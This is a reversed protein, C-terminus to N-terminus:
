RLLLPAVDLEAPVKVGLQALVTPAIHLLDVGEPPLDCKKNSFFIGRVLETDVSVHDGSWNKDNDVVVPGLKGGPASLGGSTTTWSVRYNSDFGVSIDAELHQHPGHHIQSVIDASRGFKEGTKADQAALFRQVIEQILADKEEPKVIGVKSEGGVTNIYITGLGLAYAKTKSWDVYGSLLAYMGAGEKVALFGEQALWNNLHVQRRFSQFGHDACLLLTDGPKVYESVVRGVIQDIKRYMAPIAEALTIEQGYFTTKTAAKAADHLPHQPDYYQYLMHQVRDAESFIGVFLKWDDRSLGDFVLKERWQTTFEIDQLFTVADIVDDKFPHTLCAWGVTEFTGCSTALEKSFDAPQSIPQWFPPNAPDIEITNLYLEFHPSDLSVLKARTVAHVKLLPNLEFTVRYWDSWAGEKIDQSQGGITVKALGQQKEIRMPVTVPQALADKLANRREDLELSKKFPMSPEDVLRKEIGALEERLQPVLWFNDPGYVESEIVGDREDVRLKYGGSGTDAGSESLKRAFFLEDTTYIFYNTYTGRADPVGLGCMVKAGSVPERNWVQQGDIVRSPVGAHAAVEWFPAAQLPNTVVPITAPLYGRMTAGGWAGVGGLVLALLVTPGKKLRLLLGFVLVFLIFGGGGLVLAFVAPSWTPIPTHEFDEVPTAVGDEAFGKIPSPTGDTYTRTVFGPIATKAPNQGSNLSAWAVPSEAPNTTGLTAFTGQERLKALNPLQGQDMMEAVTRGDAGDFGLVIVRGSQARASGWFFLGLLAFCLLFPRRLLRATSRLFNM